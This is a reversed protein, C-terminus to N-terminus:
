IIADKCERGQLKQNQAKHHELAEEILLMERQEM